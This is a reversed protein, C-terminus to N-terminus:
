FNLSNIVKNSADFWEKAEPEGGGGILLDYFKQQAGEAFSQGNCGGYQKLLDSYHMSNGIKDADGYVTVNIFMNQIPISISTHFKFNCVEFASFTIGTRFFKDSKTKMIQDSANLTWRSFISKGLMKGQQLESYADQMSKKNFMPEQSYNFNEIDFKNIIIGQGTSPIHFQDGQLEVPFTDPHEFSISGYNAPAKYKVSVNRYILNNQSDYCVHLIRAPFPEADSCSPTNQICLFSQWVGDKKAAFWNCGGATGATGMAYDGEIKQINIDTGPSQLRGKVFLTLEPDNITITPSEKTEKQIPTSKSKGILVLFSTALIVVLALIALLLPSYNRKKPAEAFTTSVQSIDETEFNQADSVPITNM